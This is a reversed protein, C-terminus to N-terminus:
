GTDFVRPLVIIYCNGNDFRVLYGGQHLAFTQFVTVLQICLVLVLQASTLLYRILYILAVGLIIGCVVISSGKLISRILETNVNNFLRSEILALGACPDSCGQLQFLQKLKSSM